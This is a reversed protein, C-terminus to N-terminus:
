GASGADVRYRRVLGADRALAEAREAQGLRTFEAAAAEREAIERALLAALAVDDLVLREVEASGAHFDHRVLSASVPAVAVAEGNDIAGLLARLLSVEDRARAKMAATIDKRLRIKLAAAADYPM